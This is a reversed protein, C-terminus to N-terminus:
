RAATTSSTAESARTARRGLLALGRVILVLLLASVGVMAIQWAHPLFGLAVILTTAGAPPHHLGLALLLGTTLGLALAAAAVHEWGGGAVLTAAGAHLGFAQLCLWGAAAGVLHSGIVNRPRAAPLNPFSILIFASAGLAPFLFPTKTVLSLAGLPGAALAAQLACVLARQRPLQPPTVTNM